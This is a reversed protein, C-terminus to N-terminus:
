KKWKVIRERIKGFGLRDFLAEIKGRDAGHYKLTSLNVQVPAECAITALQKSLFAMDRSQELKIRIAAAGRVNMKEVQSIKQYLEEVSAFKALLAAATKEGIGKVGPINDVADGMLALLDIIQNARVGFHQKVTKEDFWRDKAFDWLRTRKNVLQALDKDSSVVVFDGDKKFLKAIVTGIIDDAEYRDDIYAKLGLAETVQWCADLQAKLEEDPLERNAKYAPYFENRFSSTLSGDFALALHTPQAKKVLDLLFATYGYVANVPAGDPARMSSPISFYARFIYPSADILYITPM